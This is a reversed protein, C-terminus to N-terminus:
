KFLTRALAEQFKETYELFKFLEGHKALKLVCYCINAKRKVYISNEEFDDGDKSTKINLNEVLDLVSHEISTKRIPIAEKILTGNFSADLIKVINPHRCQTLIEIEKFFCDLM